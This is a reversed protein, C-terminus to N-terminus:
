DPAGLVATPDADAKVTQATLRPCVLIPILVLVPGNFRSVFILRVATKVSPTTKAAIGSSPASVGCIRPASTVSRVRLGLSESRTRAAFIVTAVRGDLVIGLVLTMSLSLRRAM